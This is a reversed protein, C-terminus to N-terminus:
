QNERSCEDPELMDIRYKIIVFVIMPMPLKRTLILVEFMVHAMAGLFSTLPRANGRLFKLSVACSAAASRPVTRRQYDRPLPSCPNRVQTINLVYM